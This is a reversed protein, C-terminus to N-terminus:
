FIPVTLRSVSTPSATDTRRGTVTIIMQGLAFEGAVEVRQVLLRPEWRALAIATAMVCLLRTAANNPRDLLEFLLSGYDRRMPRTGIPTSLIDGISQILHDDGDLQAGTERNM